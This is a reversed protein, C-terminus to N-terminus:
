RKIVKFEARRNWKWASEDHGQVGPKSEGFSVTDMRASPIGLNALYQKVSNARREGLALNYEESGREDCHGEVVVTSWEAHSNIHQSNGRLTGKQDERVHSRDYDFYVAELEAVSVPMGSEDDGMGGAGSDFGSGATADEEEGGGFLSCGTTLMAATFTVMALRGIQFGMM